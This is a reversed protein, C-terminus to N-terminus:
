EVCLKTIKDAKDILHAETDSKIQLVRSLKCELWCLLCLREQSIISREPINSKEWASCAWGM